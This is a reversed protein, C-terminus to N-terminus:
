LARVTQKKGGSSNERPVCMDGGPHSIFVRSVTPGDSDLRGDMRSETVMLEYLPQCSPQERSIFAATLQTAARSPPTPPSSILSVTPKLCARTQPSLPQVSAQRHPGSLSEVGSVQDPGHKNLHTREAVPCGAVTTSFVFQVFGMKWVFHRVAFPSPM